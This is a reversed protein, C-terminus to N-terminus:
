ETINKEMVLVNCEGERHYQLNDMLQKCLFIGLGGIEREEASLTIDPDEKTLPDFPLGGDKLTIRLVQPSDTTLAVEVELFGDTGEAYAYRVVNEVVEEVSLRVKFELQPDEPVQPAAMIFEIIEAGRGNIPEFRKVTHALSTNM